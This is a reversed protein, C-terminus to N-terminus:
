NDVLAVSDFKSNILDEIISDEFVLDSEFLLTDDKKMEERALWFSYINNTQDYIPNEIYEIKTKINLDNINRKLDEARYGVVVIIKNLNKNDLQRLLREILSEGAVEVMCKTKDKTLEKLRKGMGAALIVAQM